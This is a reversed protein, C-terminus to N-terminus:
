CASGKEALRNISAVWGLELHLINKLLVCFHHMHIM